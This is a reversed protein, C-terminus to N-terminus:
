DRAERLVRRYSDLLGSMIHDWSYDLARARAAGGMRARLEADQALAAIRDVMITEERASVLYGTVGEMVLSNSGSSVANVAPLGSAM